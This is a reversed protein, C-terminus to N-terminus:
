HAFNTKIQKEFQVNIDTKFTLLSQFHVTIRMVPSIYM